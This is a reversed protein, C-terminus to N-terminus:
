PDLDSNYVCDLPNAEQETPTYPEYRNFQGWRFVLNKLTLFDDNMTYDTLTRNNEGEVQSKKHTSEFVPFGFYAKLLNSILASNRKTEECDVRSEFHLKIENLKYDWVPHKPLTFTDENLILDNYENLIATGNKDFISFIIKTDPFSFVKNVLRFLCEVATFKNFNWITELVENPTEDKFLEKFKYKRVELLDDIGTTWNNQIKNMQDEMQAFSILKIRNWKFVCETTAILQNVNDCITKNLEKVGVQTHINCKSAYFKFVNKNGRMNEEYSIEKLLAQYIPCRVDAHWFPTDFTKGNIVLHIENSKLKRCRYLTQFFDRQSVWVAWFAFICDFHNLDFNVGVTICPNTIVCRKNSWITNVDMTTKKTEDGVDAHYYIFDDKTLGTLQILTEVVQFMSPNKKNEQKYPYFVFINEGKNLKEALTHIWSQTNKYKIFMRKEAVSPSTIVKSKQNDIATMLNKTRNCMFADMLYVKKAGKIIDKFRIWNINIDQAGPCGMGGKWFMNLTEIEDIVVTDYRQDGTYKLSPLCCFLHKFTQIEMKKSPSTWDKYNKFQFGGQNQIREMVNYTLSVRPTLWLIKDKPDLNAIVSGTKNTGMDTALLIYKHDGQLDEPTLFRNTSNIAGDLNFSSIFKEEAMGKTINPYFRKLVMKIFNIGCSHGYNSTWYNNYRELREFSADSQKAWTWFYEFSIGNDKAWLMIKWTTNHDLASEHGQPHNPIISLIETPSTDFWDFDKPNPQKLQPLKLIDIKVKTSGTIEPDTSQFEDWDLDKADMSTSSVFLISHEEISHGSLDEQIAGEPKSQNVCKMLRNKTYVLNDVGLYTLTNIWPLFRQQEDQNAFHYNLLVIHRSIKTNTDNGSVAFMARPFKELIKEKIINLDFADKNEAPFDLDFYVKRPVASQIIEYIGRNKSVLKIYQEKEVKSWMRGEKKTISCVPIEANTLSALIQSQAGGDKDTNKLWNCKWVTKEVFKM